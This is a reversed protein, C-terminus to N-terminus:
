QAEVQKAAKGGSVAEIRNRDTLGSNQMWRGESEEEGHVGKAKATDKGSGPPNPVKV